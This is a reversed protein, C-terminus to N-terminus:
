RGHYRRHEQANKLDESDFIDVPEETILGIVTAIWMFAWFTVAVGWLIGPAHFRDLLLGTVLTGNVPLFTPLNRRKIVIRDKM